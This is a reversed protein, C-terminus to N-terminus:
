PAASDSGDYDNDIEARRPKGTNSLGYLGTQVLKFRKDALDRSSCLCSCECGESGFDM